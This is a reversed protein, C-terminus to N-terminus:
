GHSTHIGTLREDSTGLLEGCLICIVGRFLEAPQDPDAPLPTSDYVDSFRSTLRPHRRGLMRHVDTPTRPPRGTGRALQEAAARYADTGFRLGM